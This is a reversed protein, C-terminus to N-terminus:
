SADYVHTAVYGDSTVIVGSRSEEILNRRNKWTIRVVSRKAKQVAIPIKQALTALRKRIEDTTDSTVEIKAEPCQIRITKRLKQVMEDPPPGASLPTTSVVLAVSALIIRSM